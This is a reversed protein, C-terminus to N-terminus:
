LHLLIRVRPSKRDQPDPRWCGLVVEEFIPISLSEPKALRQGNAYMVKALDPELGVVPDAGYSFIQWM